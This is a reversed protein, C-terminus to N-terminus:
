RILHERYLIVSTECQYLIDNCVHQCRIFNFLKKKKKCKKKEKVFKDSICFSQTIKVRTENISRLFKKSLTPEWIALFDYLYIGFYSSVSKILRLHIKKQKSLYPLPTVPLNNTRKNKQDTRVRFECKIASKHAMSAIHM